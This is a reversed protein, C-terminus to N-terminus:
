NLFPLQAPARLQAKRISNNPLAESGSRKGALLNVNPEYLLENLPKDIGELIVGKLPPQALALLKELMIIIGNTNFHCQLSAKLREIGGLPM